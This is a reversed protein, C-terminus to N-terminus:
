PKRHRALVDDLSPVVVEAFYCFDTFREGRHTRPWDEENTADWDLVFEIAQELTMADGGHHEYRDQAADM